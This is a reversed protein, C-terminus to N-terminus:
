FGKLENLEKLKNDDKFFFKWKNSSIHKALDAQEFARQLISTPILGIGEKDGLHEAIDGLLGTPLNALAAGSSRLTEMIIRPFDTKSLGLQIAALYFLKVSDIRPTDEDKKVKVRDILQKLIKVEEKTDGIIKFSDSVHLMAIKFIRDEM